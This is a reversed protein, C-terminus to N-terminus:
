ALGKSRSIEGCVCIINHVDHWKDDHYSDDVEFTGGCYGCDRVYRRRERDCDRCVDSDDPFDDLDLRQGCDVCKMSVLDGNLDYDDEESCTGERPGCILADSDFTQFSAECM